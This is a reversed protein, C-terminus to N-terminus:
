SLQKSRRGGVSQLRLSYQQLPRTWYWLGICETSLIGSPIFGDGRSQRLVQQLVVKLTPAPRPQQARGMNCRGFPALNLSKMQTGWLAAHPNSRQTEPPTCRM